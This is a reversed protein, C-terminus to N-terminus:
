LTSYIFAHLLFCVPEFVHVQYNVRMVKTIFFGEVAKEAARDIKELVSVIGETGM